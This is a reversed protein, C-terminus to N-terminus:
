ARYQQVTYGPAMVRPVLVMGHANVVHAKGRAVAFRDHELGNAAWACLQCSVEYRRRLAKDTLDILLTQLNNM